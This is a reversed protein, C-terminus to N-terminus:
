SRVSWVCGYVFLGNSGEVRLGDEILRDKFKVMPIPHPIKEEILYRLYDLYMYRLGCLKLNANSIILLREKIYRNVTKTEIDLPVNDGWQSYENLQVGCIFILEKGGKKVINVPEISHLTFIFNIYSTSHVGDTECSTQYHEYLDRVEIRDSTEDTSILIDHLYEELYTM